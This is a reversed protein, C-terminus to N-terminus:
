SLMIVYMIDKASFKPRERVTVIYSIEYLQHIKSARLREEDIM